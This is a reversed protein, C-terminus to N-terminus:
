QINKFMNFSNGYLPTKGDWKEIFKQQILLPSLTRNRIDNAKAEAEAYVIKVKSNAEAVKLENEARQADQVAKNKNNIADVIVDPYVLGSTLQILTFGEKALVTDLNAQVDSEFLNRKSILEDTTYKNMSLRFVDKTYNFLSQNSITQLEKRYKKFIMPTANATVNFSITPDVTFVTGDKSNIRFSPYDVTQVFTPFEYITETFPNYFVMGTVLAIDDVGKESGYLNVKIGEYGADIRECSCSGLLFASLSFVIFMKFFITM